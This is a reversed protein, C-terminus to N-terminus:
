NYYTFVTTKPSYYHYHNILENYLLHCQFNNKEIKIHHQCELLQLHFTTLLNQNM